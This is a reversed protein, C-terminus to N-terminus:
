DEAQIPQYSVMAMLGIALLSLLLNIVFALHYSFTLDYLLGSVWHALIAGLGYFPTWAGIITGMLEKPFYDGACAGYIPFTVGYFVAMMGVLIFLIAASNAVLVIGAISIAICTNSIIITKKRGWIDSMPLITLVGAIQSLGHVTALLSATAIPILLDQEAYDVMFTTIGYLSYAICFYSLGIFWFAQSRFVASFPIHKALLPKAAPKSQQNNNKEGWPSLGAQGPDSRLLVANILVMALAALGLFYWAFRWNLYTIIWPFVAGMSAFGLGYGASLLGLALGRRKIAFWRQVVTIVPTWMGTAGIGTIAFFISATWLSQATAMLLVGLGLIFACISIVRRAGFRDTLYGTFPTLAIYTLLYANYISGAGTRSIGLERIMEPLVVGYGLRVSYNIFINVFCIALVVWAWHLAADSKM